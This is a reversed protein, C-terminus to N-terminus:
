YIRTKTYLSRKAEQISLMKDPWRGHHDQIFKDRKDKTIRQYDTNWLSVRCNKDKILTSDSDAIQNCIMNFQDYSLGNSKCIAVLTLANPYRLGRCSCLADYLRNKYDEPLDVVQTNVIPQYKVKQIVPGDVFDSYPDIMYGKNHYVLPDNKGSHFYFSQSASFSSEDVGTFTDKISQLKAPIDDVWLQQIFPIVVRFRHKDYTHNFTTYLVYELGDFTDIARDITYDKDFDLVMGSISVINDSCRSVTNPFYIYENTPQGNKYIRKRGLLASEDGIKKFEALNFLDGHEKIDVNRRTLLVEVIDHWPMDGVQQNENYIYAKSTSDFLTIIM